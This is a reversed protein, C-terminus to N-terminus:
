SFKSEIEINYKILSNFFDESFWEKITLPRWLQLIMQNLKGDSENLFSDIQKSELIIDIQSSDLKFIEDIIIGTLKLQHVCLDGAKNIRITFLLITILILFTIFTM